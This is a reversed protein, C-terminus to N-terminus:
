IRKLKMKYNDCDRCTHSSQWTLSLEHVGQGNGLKSTNLDYSYGLKLEGARMSVFPNLSTLIHSNPSKGEPNTSAIIGFAFTNMELSTSFDLRNYQSQRMYNFSFLLNSDQPLIMFPTNNLEFFYGGHLTFYLDLPVNGNETFSIDPRGLHKLTAGFWANEQDVLVGASFDVFNINNKNKLYGPDISSGSIAGTNINIQDELLLNGFNFDKRGYGGEIGLRLRWDYNIDVRYSFAGNIQFFNYDTFVERHNLVTLGIGINDDVLNNAFGYQTDIRRNGDPWQSRHLLGANWASAAGTFAPNLTEPVLLFQTFVPDQAQLHLCSFLFLLATYLNLKM